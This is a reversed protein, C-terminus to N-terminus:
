KENENRKPKATGMIRLDLFMAQWTTMNKGTADRFAKAEIYSQLVWGSAILASFIAIIMIGIKLGKKEEDNM